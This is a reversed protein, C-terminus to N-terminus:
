LPEGTIREGLSCITDFLLNQMERTCDEVGQSIHLFEEILTGALMKTGMHLTRQSIYIKEDVARGMVSDGLHETVIIPYTSVNFGIREAFNVAKNLRKQDIDDLKLASKESLVQIISEECLAKLTPPVPQFKSMLDAVVKKLTDSPNLSYALTHEYYSNPAGVATAMTRENKLQNIGYTIASEADWRWKITRDETLTLERTINYTFITPKDLKLARIGRYYLWHSSNAHIEINDFKELPETALFVSNCEDHLQQTNPGFVAITTGDQKHNLRNVLGWKGAEDLANSALERVAMWPEWFKGLDTTFNVSVGNMSVLDFEKVRITQTQKSFQYHKDGAYIEIKYGNRLLVAIAYKLGTGFMGIATDDSKASVGFTLMAMPDIHGPNTFTLISM